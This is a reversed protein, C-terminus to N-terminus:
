PEQEAHAGIAVQVILRVLTAMVAAKQQDDLTNWVAANDNPRPPELLSLQEVRGNRGVLSHVRKTRPEAGICCLTLL